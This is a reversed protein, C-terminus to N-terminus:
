ILDNFLEKPAGALEVLAEAEMFHLDVPIMLCHLPGGFDIGLLNKIKDARVVPNESGARAVVVVVTDDDAVKENLESEVQLLYEMAQNATMYRDEHARIDLLVLTHLKSEMNSKIAMYPSHPFYNEETFPITTVKGFKYAQLGAIGPAASLISSSHIVMTEIGSRKAEILMESHTTAILPDGASLFAVDRNKADNIPINEEEVEERTLIKIEHGIIRELSSISGGFLKATYFEAYVADVKKLAEVGKVSIDREDYLGLGVFYFM